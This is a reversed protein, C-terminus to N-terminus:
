RRHNLCKRRREEGHVTCAEVERLLKLDEEFTFRPWRGRTTNTNPAIVDEDSRFGSRYNHVTPYGELEVPLPPFIPTTKTKPQMKLRLYTAMNNSASEDM